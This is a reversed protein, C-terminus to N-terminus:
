KITSYIRNDPTSTIVNPHTLSPVLSDSTKNDWKAESTNLHSAFNPLHTASSIPHSKQGDRSTILYKFLEYVSWSIATAPMSYLVRAQLGQFYGKPGCCQYITSAANWLGTVSNQKSTRLTQKEQTNLLTKCVDLPTTAAAAFGGAIAGSIMHAKPSYTRESNTLEQMFEYTIFHLSQTPINMSLSTMYSRYFARLGEKRYVDLFCNLASKYPSNFVQMRQKVVEAPNMVADHLITALCGAGCIYQKVSQHLGQAIPHHAGTESGSLVRKMKEYCSFYLAHAPGAGVSVASVGKIPRLLGEHRVMKYLAEPVSRYSAKPNPYLSQMRTKVSDLPYMVVHEMIGAVAGAIMHTRVDSTPLSEYEEEMVDVSVEESM